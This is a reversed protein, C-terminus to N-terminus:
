KTGMIVSTENFAKRPSLPVLLQVQEKVSRQLEITQNEGLPLAELSSIIDERAKEDKTNEFM